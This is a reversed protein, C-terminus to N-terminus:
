ASVRVSSARNVQMSMSVGTGDSNNINLLRLRIWGDMVMTRSDAVVMNQWQDLPLAEANSQIGFAKLELLVVCEPAVPNKTVTSQAPSVFNLSARTISIGVVSGMYVPLWGTTAGIFDAYVSDYQRTIAKTNGGPRYFM